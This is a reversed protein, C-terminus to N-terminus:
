RNNRAGIGLSSVTIVCEKFALSDDYSEVKEKDRGRDLKNLFFYHHMYMDERTVLPKGVSIKHICYIRVNPPYVFAKEYSFKRPEKECTYINLFDYGYEPKNDPNYFFKSLLRFGGHDCTKPFAVTLPVKSNVYEDVDLFGIYRAHRFANLAHTQASPQYRDSFPWDIILVIGRIIYWQLLENLNTTQRKGFYVVDQRASDKKALNRANDYLVFRTVGLKMHHEIWQIIHDDENLLITMMIIEDRYKPFTNVPYTNGNFYVTDCFNGKKIYLTTHGHTCQITDWGLEKHKSQRTIVVFETGNYFVDYVNEDSVTYRPLFM